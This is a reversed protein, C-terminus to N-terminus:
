SSHKAKLRHAFCLEFDILIPTLTTHYPTKANIQSNSNKIEFIENCKAEKVSSQLEKM